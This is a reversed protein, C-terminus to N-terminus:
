KQVSGLVSSSHNSSLLLAIFNDHAGRCLEYLKFFSRTNGDKREELTRGSGFNRNGALVLVNIKLDFKSVYLNHEM